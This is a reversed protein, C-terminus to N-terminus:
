TKPMSWYLSVLSGIVLILVALVLLLTNKTKRDM